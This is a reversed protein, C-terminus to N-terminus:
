PVVLMQNPTAIFPSSFTRVPTSSSGTPDIEVMLGSTGDIALIKGNPRFSVDAPNALVGLNSFSFATSSMASSSYMRITDTTGNFAVVIQGSTSTRCGTVTHAIGLSPVPSLATATAVLTGTNTYSRVHQGGTSCQIWGDSTPLSAIGTALNQYNLPFAATSVRGPITGTTYRETTGAAAGESILIDGSSLRTIGRMTGTLNSDVIYAANAGTRLNALVVRDVGEVTILVNESDYMALGWPIDTSVASIQLLTRVYNGDADMLIVNKTTTNSVIIYNSFSTSGGSVTKGVFSGGEPACSTLIWFCFTYLALLGTRKLTNNKRLGNM